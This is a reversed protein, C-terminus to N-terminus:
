RWILAASALLKRSSRVEYYCGYIYLKMLDRPDYGPTGTEAPQYRLFGLEEMDIQDVFADFLRVPADEGIFEDLCPPFLIYQRRDVGKLYAM